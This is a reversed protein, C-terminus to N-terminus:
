VIIPNRLFDAFDGQSEPNLAILTAANLLAIVSDIKATGSAQKTILISNARPEIKANSVSWAMLSQKSPKFSGDALWREATKIASGLKWGQPIATIYEECDIGVYELAEEISGLGMPDVGIQYLKGSEFVQSCMDALEAMDDGVRDVLTLEGAASFDKLAPAIEQRRELVSPHAWAYGWGLKGGEPTRGMVYFGLLDDLGGGDIGIAVVESRDILDQLSYHENAQKEWFQAGAWNDSKLALGMEINFHKAYFKQRTSEDLSENKTINHQLWEASVSRGLNPNGIHFNEPKLYLKKKVYEEPYEYIVPLAKNDQVEGDRVKRFYGLKERFVGAPPDDSQTSLYIVFGEPRSVLGGTAEMLMGDAKAKKGFVWLEDVLIRGAKKGSVTDTDAAVTKLSNRNIRHTITRIHDQVHFLASLTEDSRVMAAAPKFSADAVEKTPAIILHEEEERWCVILATLMLAASLTSKTNKKAILLLFENILQEGTESNYGGFVASVFDFVWQESVEGFKPKGALDPIRLEKFIALAAAASDPFLPPPIISQKNILRREWDICSTTWKM